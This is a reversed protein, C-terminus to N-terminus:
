EIGSRVSQDLVGSSVLCDQYKQLHERGFVTDELGTPLVFLHNKSDSRRPRTRPRIGGLAWLPSEEEGM